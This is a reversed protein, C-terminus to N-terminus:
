LPKASPELAVIERAIREAGEVMERIVTKVPLIEQILGAVQGAMPSGNDFDGDRLAAKTRGAGVIEHFDDPSLEKAELRLLVEAFKNRLVRVPSDASRGTIVTDVDKARLLAEKYSPHAACEETAAFRTGMQVGKAGLARAAVFGRADGIGGAAVVPIDLADVVQPILAMTTVEYPSNHGGAEVGEAVVIDVGADEAKKALRVSPAVHLVRRGERKLKPTLKEPNGASTVVAFVEEGICLDAKEASLPVLLPINVGFPKDTLEKTKLIREGLEEVTLHASAIVGLGGANSVAAVLEAESIWVMAGMLIPYRINLIECVETHLLSGQM